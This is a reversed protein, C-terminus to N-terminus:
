GDQNLITLQSGSVIVKRGRDRHWQAAGADAICEAADFGNAALSVYHARIDADVDKLQELVHSSNGM